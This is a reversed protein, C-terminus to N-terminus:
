CSLGNPLDLGYHSKDNLVLKTCKDGVYCTLISGQLNYLAGCMVGKLIVKSGKYVSLVGGEGKFNFGKNDLLSLSILNKSMEPIQRVNNLTRVYGDHTWLRVSGKGVIKSIDGNAM